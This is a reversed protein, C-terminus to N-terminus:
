VESPRRADECVELLTNAVRAVRDPTMGPWIPLSISRSYLREAETFEGDRYGLHDRYYPHIHLPIFHVSVGVGAATLRAIIDDRGASLLQTEVQVVYLHWAHAGRNHRPPPIVLPSDVFAADYQRAIARREAALDDLRELQVLGIAAALDTMNYKFGAAGVEYYWSGGAGYRNWADANIGHLRMRAARAAVDPDDTLLMGGEGGTTMTKTAYFSLAAADGLRGVPVGDLDAPFAHAADELVRVNAGVATRIQPVDAAEGAFHVPMVARTRPTVAAAVAAPSVHYSADVDVLVPRAGLYACVEGCATFTYTPVIVEDGPGIGFAELALHLAATASNVALAHATGTRKAVAREFAAARQGTTLWGSRLVEIAAAIEGDGISPRHFPIFDNDRLTRRWSCDRRM